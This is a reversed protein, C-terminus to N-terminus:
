GERPIEVVPDGIYTHEQRNKDEEGLEKEKRDIEERVLTVQIKAYEGIAKKRWKQDKTKQQDRQAGKTCFFPDFLAQRPYSGFDKLDVGRDGTM